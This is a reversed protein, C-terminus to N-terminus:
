DAPTGWLFDELQPRLVILRGGLKTCPLSGRKALNYITQTSVKLFAAVESVTMIDEPRLPARRPTPETEADTLAERNM